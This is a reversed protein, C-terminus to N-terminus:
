VRVRLETFLLSMDDARHTTWRDVGVLQLGMGTMKRFEKDAWIFHEHIEKEWDKKERFAEDAVVQVKLVRGQAVSPLPTAAVVLSLLFAPVVLRVHKM